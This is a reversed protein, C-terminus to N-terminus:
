ESNRRVPAPAAPGQQVRGDFVVEIGGAGALRQELRWNRLERKFNPREGFETLRRRVAGMNTEWLSPQELKMKGWWDEVEVNSCIVFTHAMCQVHGGKIQFKYQWRDIAQLFAQMALGGRFEELVWVGKGAADATAWQAGGGNNTNFVYVDEPDFKNNWWWSKGTGSEGILIYVKPTVTGDRGKDFLSECKEIIRLHKSLVDFSVDGGQILRKLTTGNLLAPRIDELTAAAGTKGSPFVGFNYMDSEHDVSDKHPNNCYLQVCELSREEDTAECFKATRWADGLLRKGGVITIKKTFVVYYQLHGGLKPAV